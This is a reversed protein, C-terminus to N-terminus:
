VNGDGARVAVIPASVMLVVAIVSKIVERILDNETADDGLFDLTGVAGIALLMGVILLVGAIIERSKM